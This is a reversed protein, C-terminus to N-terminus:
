RIWQNKINPISGPAKYLNIVAEELLEGIKPKSGPVPIKQSAPVFSPFWSLWALEQWQRSTTQRGEETVGTDERQDWERAQRAWEQM